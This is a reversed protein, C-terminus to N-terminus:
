SLTRFSLSIIGALGGASYTNPFHYNTPEDQFCLHTINTHLAISPSSPSHSTARPQGQGSKQCDKQTHSWALVRWFERVEQAPLPKQEWREASKGWGGLPAKGNLVLRWEM